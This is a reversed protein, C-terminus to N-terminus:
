SSEQIQFESLDRSETNYWKIEFPEDSSYARYSMDAMIKPDIRCVLNIAEHGEYSVRILALIAGFEKPLAYDERFQETSRYALRVLMEGRILSCSVVNLIASQSGPVDYYDVNEVQGSWHLDRNKPMKSLSISDKPTEFKLDLLRGHCKNADEKGINEIKIGFGLRITNLGQEIVGIVKLSSKMDIEFKNARERQEQWLKYPAVFVILIVLPIWGSLWLWNSEQIAKFTGAMGALSFITAIITLILPTIIPEGREWRSFAWSVCRGWFRLWFM